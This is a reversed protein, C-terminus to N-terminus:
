PRLRRFNSGVARCSVGLGLLVITGVLARSGTRDDADGHHGHYGPEEWSEFGFDLFTSLSLVAAGTDIARVMANGTDGDLRRWQDLLGYAGAICLLLMAASVNQLWWSHPFQCAAKRVDFDVYLDCPKYIMIVMVGASLVKGITAERGAWFTATPTPGVKLNENPLSSRAQHAHELRHGALNLWGAIAMASGCWPRGSAGGVFTLVAGAVMHLPVYVTHNIASAWHLPAFYVVIAVLIIALSPIAKITWRALKLDIFRNTCENMHVIPIRWDGDPSMPGFEDTLFGDAEKYPVSKVTLGGWNEDVLETAMFASRDLMSGSHHNIRVLDAKFNADGQGYQKRDCYCNYYSVPYKTAPYDKDLYKLGKSPDDIDEEHWEKFFFLPATTQKSSSSASMARATEPSSLWTSQRLSCAISCRPGITQTSGSTQM